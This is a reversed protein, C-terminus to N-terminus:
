LDLSKSFAAAQAFLLRAFGEFALEESPESYQGQKGADKRSLLLCAGDYLRERLLKTLLIEYRKAYSSDHFEEFVNFHSERVSIPRLSDPAEELLMVYGLWPKRSPRFAGERYATWLDTANGLSEETRNNFNNGFSPGVQSKFEICAILQGDVVVLLDWRKEPRFFGPLDLKKGSFIASKPIGAELFLERALDVFGDMHAGGTVASRAGQDKQGSRGGQNKAQRNRTSWFHRVAKSVQKKLDKMRRGM